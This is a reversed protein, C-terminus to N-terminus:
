FGYKIIPEYKIKFTCPLSCTIENTREDYTNTLVFWHYNFDNAIDHTVNSTIIQHENDLTIKEGSQCNNVVISYNENYTINKIELNGASSPTITIIPYIEGIEDSMDEIEFSAYSEGSAITLTKTEEVEEAFGHPANTKIKLKMGVVEGDFELKSCNFSAYFYVEEYENENEDYIFKLKHFDTRNLWRMLDRVDRQSVVYSDSDCTNKIIDIETELYTEYKSSIHYSTGGRNASVINFSLESGATTEVVGSSSDFSGIIFGFQSLNLGDYEFDTAIM